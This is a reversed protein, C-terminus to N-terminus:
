KLQQPVHRMGVAEEQLSPDGHDSKLRKYHVPAHLSADARGGLHMSKMHM